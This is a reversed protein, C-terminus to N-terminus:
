KNPVSYCYSPNNKWHRSALNGYIDSLINDRGCVLLYIWYYINMFCYFLLHPSKITKNSLLLLHPRSRMPCVWSFWEKIRLSSGGGFHGYPFWYEILCMKISHVFGLWVPFFNKLAFMFFSSNLFIARVFLILKKFVIPRRSFIYVINGFGEAM